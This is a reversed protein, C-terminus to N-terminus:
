VDACYWGVHESTRLSVKMVANLWCQDKKDFGGFILGYRERGIRAAGRARPIEGCVGKKECKRNILQWSGRRKM